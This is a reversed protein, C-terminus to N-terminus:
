VGFAIRGEEHNEGLRYNAITLILLYRRTSCQNQKVVMVVKNGTM